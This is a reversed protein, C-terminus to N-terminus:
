NEHIIYGVMYSDYEEIGIINNGMWYKCVHIMICFGMTEGTYIDESMVPISKIYKMDWKTDFELNDKLIM